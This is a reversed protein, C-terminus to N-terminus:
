STTSDLHPYLCVSELGCRVWETVDDGVTFGERWTGGEQSVHVSVMTELPKM